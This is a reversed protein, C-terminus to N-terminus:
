PNPNPSIRVQASPCYSVANRLLKDLSEARRRKVVELDVAPNAAADADGSMLAAIKAVSDFREVTWFKEPISKGTHREM